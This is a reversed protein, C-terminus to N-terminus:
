EVMKDSTPCINQCAPALINHSQLILLAPLAAAGHKEDHCPHEHCVPDRSKLRTAKWACVHNREARRKVSTLPSARAVYFNRWCFISCSVCLFSTNVYPKVRILEMVGQALLFRLIDLSSILLNQQFSVNRFKLMLGVTEWCFVYVIIVSCLVNWLVLTLAQM